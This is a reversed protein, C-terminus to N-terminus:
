HPALSNTATEYSIFVNTKGGIHRLTFTYTQDPALNLPPFWTTQGQFIWNTRPRFDLQIINTVGEATVILTRM